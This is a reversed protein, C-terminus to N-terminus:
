TSSRASRAQCGAPARGRCPSRSASPETLPGLGDISGVVSRSTSPAGHGDSVVEHAGSSSVAHDEGAVGAVRVQRRTAAPIRAEGRIRVLEPHCPRRIVHDGRHLVRHITVRPDDHAAATVAELAEDIIGGDLDDDVGGEHGVHVEVRVHLREDDLRARPEPVDVM